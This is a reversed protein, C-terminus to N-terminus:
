NGGQEGSKREDLNERYMTVHLTELLPYALYYASLGDPHLRFQIIPRYLPEGPGVSAQRRDFLRKVTEVLEHRPDPERPLSALPFRLRWPQVVVESRKCEVVVIFDRNGILRGLPSPPIPRKRVTAKQLSELPTPIYPGTVSEGADSGAAGSGGAMGQQQKAGAVRSDPTATQGPASENPGPAPSKPRWPDIDPLGTGPSVSRSQPTGTQAVNTAPPVTSFVNDKEAGALRSNRDGTLTGAAMGQKNAPANATGWGAQDRPQNTIPKESVLNSTLGGGPGGPHAFGTGPQGPVARGPRSLPDSGFAVDTGSTDPNEVIPTGIGPATQSGSGGPIGSGPFRTGGTGRPRWNPSGSASVAAYPEPVPSSVKIGREALGAGGPVLQGNSVGMGPLGNGTRAPGGGSDGAVGIAHHGIASGRSNGGGPGYAGPRSNIGNGTRADVASGIGVLGNGQRAPRPRAGSGRTEKSLIGPAAWPQAAMHEPSSFDLVWDAEVFEYGFDVPLDQVAKQAQWYNSIGDPRVLFLLYPNKQRAEEDDEKSEAALAGASKEIEARMQATQISAPGIRRRGPQFIIGASTCEVYIPKRAQGFRGRYPILSYTRTERQRLAQLERLTQELQSLEATMRVIAKQSAERENASQVLSKEKAALDARTRELRLHERALAAELAAGDVKEKGLKDSLQRAQGQVTALQTELDLEQHALLAHLEERKREWEKRASETLQADRAQRASVFELAKARAVIKARRDIVLLLFILSGMACLLVALFPFTNVQLVHGRRRM